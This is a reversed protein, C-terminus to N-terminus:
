FNFFNISFIHYFKSESPRSISMQGMVLISYMLNNFCGCNKEGQNNANQMLFKFTEENFELVRLAITNLYLTLRHLVEVEYKNLKGPNKFCTIMNSLFVNFPCSDDPILLLKSQRGYSVCRKEEGYCIGLAVVSLANDNKFIESLFEACHLMVVPNDCTCKLISDFCQVTTHIDSNSDAHISLSALLDTSSILFGLFDYDRDSCAVKNELTNSVIELIKRQDGIVNESLFRKSLKECQRCISAIVALVRRAVCCIETDFIKRGCTTSLDENIISPRVLQKALSSCKTNFIDKSSRSSQNQAIMKDMLDNEINIMWSSIDNFLDDIMSASIEGIENSKAQYNALKLQINVIDLSSKNCRDFIDFTVSEFFDTPIQLCKQLNVSPLNSLVNKVELKAIPARPVAFSSSSNMNSKQNNLKHFNLQDRLNKNEVELKDVRPHRMVNTNSNLKMKVEALERELRNKANRLMTSEGSLRLNEEKVKSIDSELKTLKDTTSTTPINSVDNNEKQSSPNGSFPPEVFPTIKPPFQTFQTSAGAVQFQSYCVSQNFTNDFTTNQVRKVVVEQEIQSVQSMVFDEDEDDDDGFFNSRPPELRPKKFKDEDRSKKSNQNYNTNQFPRKSM